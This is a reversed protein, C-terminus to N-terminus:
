PEWITEDRILGKILIKIHLPINTIWIQSSLIYVQSGLQSGHLEYCSLKNQLCDKSKHLKLNEKKQLKHQKSLM